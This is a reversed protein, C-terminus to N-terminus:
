SEGGMAAAAAPLNVYDRLRTIRGHHVTLVLLNPLAFEGTTASTGVAEQEVVITGPDDTDHIALTRYREYKLPHRQWGATIWNVIEDRGALRSPLGPGTFPFEHVADLAYVDRLDDASQTVAARRWRELVARPGADQEALATRRATM